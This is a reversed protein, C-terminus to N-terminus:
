MEDNLFFDHSRSLPFPRCAGRTATDARASLHLFIAARDDAARHETCCRVPRM